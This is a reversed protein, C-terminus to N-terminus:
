RDATDVHIGRAPDEGLDFREDRQSGFGCRSAAGNVEFFELDSKRIWSEDVFGLNDLAMPPTHLTKIKGNFSLPQPIHILCWRLLINEHLPCAINTRQCSKPPPFLPPITELKSNDM